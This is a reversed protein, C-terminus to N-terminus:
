KVGRVDREPGAIAATRPAGLPELLRNRVRYELGRWLIRNTFFGAFWVAASVADRL